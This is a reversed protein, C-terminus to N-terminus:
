AKWPPLWDITPPIAKLMKQGIITFSGLYPYGAPTRSLHARVPNCWIYGAVCDAADTQRLVHDYYKAQWLRHHTRKAFATATEQKFSEVFKILISDEASGGTLIHLHDPMVCFAHVFFGCAAAHTKLRAIIWSAIRHNAGFRRREYFCMTVFYLRRGRYNRTPLRINKRAFGSNM